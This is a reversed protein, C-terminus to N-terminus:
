QLGKAKRVLRGLDAREEPTLPTLDIAQEPILPAGDKGTAEVYQVERLGLLAKSLFILVTPHGGEAADLLGQKTHNKAREVWEEQNAEQGVRYAAEAEERFEPHRDAWEWVAARTVGVKAAAEYKLCGGRLLGLYKKQAKDDFKYPRKPGPVRKRM